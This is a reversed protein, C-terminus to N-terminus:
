VTYNDGISLTDVTYCKVANLSIPESRSNETIDNSNSGVGSQGPTSTSTLTGDLPLIMAMVGLEVRVLLPLVQQPGM